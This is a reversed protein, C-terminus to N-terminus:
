ARPERVGGLDGLERHREVVRQGDGGVRERELEGLPAAPPVRRDDRLVPVLVEVAQELGTLLDLVVPPRGASAQGIGGVAVAELVGHDVAEVLDLAVRPTGLVYAVDDALEGVRGLEIREDVM